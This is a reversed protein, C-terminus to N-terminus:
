VIVSVQQFFVLAKGQSRNIHVHTVHGFQSFSGILQKETVCDTPPPFTYNIIPFESAVLILISFLRLRVKGAVGAVWLCNTAHSKGYGLNIKNNGLYEGDMAHMAKVVSSIDCYQCFAYCTPGQKKIDIDQLM